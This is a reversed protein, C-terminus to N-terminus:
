PKRRQTGDPATYVTGSPIAAYNFGGGGQQPAAKDSDKAITAGSHLSSYPDFFDRNLYPSKAEQSTLQHGAAAKTNAIASDSSDKMVQLANAIDKQSMNSANPGKFPSFASGLRQAETAALRQGGGTTFSTSYLQDNLWDLRQRASLADQGGALAGGTYYGIDGGTLNPHQIAMKVADPHAQLWAINDNVPQLKAMNAGFNNKAAGIDKQDEVVQAVHGKYESPNTLWTPKQMGKNNPDADWARSAANMEKTTMDGGSAIGSLLGAKYNQIEQPSANPNAQAYANTAADVNKMAETPAMSDFHTKLAEKMAEPNNALWTAQEPTVGLLTSMGAAGAMFRNHEQMQQQLAQDKMINALMGARDDPQISNMANMMDHQQQATGFSAAMGQLGRDIGAAAVDQQHLKVYLAALDPPSQTANSPAM